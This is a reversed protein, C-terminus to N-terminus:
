EAKVPSKIRCKVRELARELVKATCNRCLDPFDTCKAYPIKLEMLRVEITNVQDMFFGIPVELDSKLLSQDEPDITANCMDCTTIKTKTEITAM